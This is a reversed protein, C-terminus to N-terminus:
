PAIETRLRWELELVPEGAVTGALFGGLLERLPRAGTSSSAEARRTAGEGGAVGASLWRQTDSEEGASFPAVVLRVRVDVGAPVSQPTGEFLRLRLGEWWDELAELGDATAAEALRGDAVARFRQEWPEWRVEIRSRATRREAARLTVEFRFTTTLGSELHERVDARGLVGTPLVLEVGAVSTLLRPAGGKEDAGAVATAFLLLAAIPRALTARPGPATHGSM